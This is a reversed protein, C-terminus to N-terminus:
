GKLFNEVTSRFAVTIGQLSEITSEELEFYKYNNYASQIMTQLSSQLTINAPTVSGVSWTVNIDRKTFGKSPSLIVFFYQACKPVLFSNM